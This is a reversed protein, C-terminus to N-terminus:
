GESRGKQQGPPAKTLVQDVPAASLQGLARDSVERTHDDDAPWLHSYIDLTM